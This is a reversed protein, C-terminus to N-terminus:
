GKVSGITLGSVFYRQFFPYACAIPLTALVVIAMRLTDTPLNNYVENAAQQLGKDELEKILALQREIRMLLYQLPYKDPDDIYLLASYWENWKAFSIFLGITAIAPVCMPLVMTIFIRYHSAGDMKASEIVELPVTTKIFTRLVVVYFTGALGSIVMAWITNRLHLIRTMVLYNAVLGGNIFMPIMIFVLLFNKLRYTNISMSYAYTMNFFIGLVVGLVTITITVIYSNLLQDSSTLAFKYSELTLGTPFITYGKTALSVDTSLSIMIVFIMPFIASFGLVGFLLNFFANTTPKIQNIRNYQSDVHKEKRM